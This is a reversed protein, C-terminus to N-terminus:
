MAKTFSQPLLYDLLYDLLNVDHAGMSYYIYCSRGCREVRWHTFHGM